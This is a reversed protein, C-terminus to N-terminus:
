WLSDRLTCCLGRQYPKQIALPGGRSYRFCPNGYPRLFPYRIAEYFPQLPPASRFPERELHTSIEAKFLIPADTNNAIIGDLQPSEHL